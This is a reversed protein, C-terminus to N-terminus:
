VSDPIRVTGRLTTSLVGLDEEHAVTASTGGSFNFTVRLIGTIGSSAENRITYEIPGGPGIVRGEDDVEHRLQASLWSAYLLAAVSEGFFSGRHTHNLIDVSRLQDLRGRMEPPDFLMATASRWEELRIWNLDAPATSTKESVRKVLALDDLRDFHSSDVILRDVPQLLADVYEAEEAPLDGLWWMAVPMDPLLLAHVLPPVRRVLDGSAVIAIEESCVKNGGGVLHCNASIWSTMERKALPTARVVITRQPVTAAARSLVESAHAHHEATSAHAVVNWLAARTVTHEDNREVQWLEALTKEISAYDVRVEEGSTARHALDENM